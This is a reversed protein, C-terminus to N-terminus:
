KHGSQTFYVRNKFDHLGAAIKEEKRGKSMQFQTSTSMRMAGRFGTQLRRRNGYLFGIGM